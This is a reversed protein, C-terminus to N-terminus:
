MMFYYDRVEAKKEFDAANYMSMRKNVVVDVVFIFYLKNKYLLFGSQHKM